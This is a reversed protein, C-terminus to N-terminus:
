KMIYKLTLLVYLALITGLYLIKCKKELNVPYLHKIVFHSRTM